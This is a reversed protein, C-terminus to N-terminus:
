LHTQKKICAGEPPWDSDDLGAILWRKMRLRLTEYSLGSTGITVQKKCTVQPRHADTHDKCTAGCGVVVGDKQIPALEWHGRGWREGIRARPRGGPHPPPPEPLPAPPDLLPPGGAPVPEPLLEPPPEALPPMAPPEPPDSEGAAEENSDEGGVADGRGRGRGKGRGRGRGKGRGKKKEIKKEAADETVKKLLRLAYLMELREAELERMRDIDTRTREMVNISWVQDSETNLVFIDWPDNSQQVLSILFQTESQIAPWYGDDKQDKQFALEFLYNREGPLRALMMFECHLTHTWHHDGMLCYIVTDGHRFEFCLPRELPLGSHRMLLRVEECVVAYSREQEPTLSHLCEGQKCAERLHSTEPFEEDEQWLMDNSEQWKKSTSALNGGGEITKEISLRSLPWAGPLRGRRCSLAWPGDAIEGESHVALAEDVPAGRGRAEGRCKRASEEWELRDAPSLAAFADRKHHLAQLRETRELGEPLRGKVYCHLASTKAKLTQTHATLDRCKGSAASTNADLLLSHWWEQVLSDFTKNVHRAAISWLSPRARPTSTLQTLTAFIREGYTSTVMCRQFMTFMFEQIDEDMLDEPEDCLEYRLAEGAWADIRCGANWFKVSEAHRTARDVGTHFICAAEWPYCLFRHVLNRWIKCFALICSKQYMNLLKEPWHVTAGFAAMLPALTAQRGNPDFIMLSLERLAKTAPNDQPCGPCFDLVDCKDEDDKCHSWFNVHKFFRYHIVM